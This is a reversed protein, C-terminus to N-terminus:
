RREVIARMGRVWLHRQVGIICLRLSSRKNLRGEQGIGELGPQRGIVLYCVTWVLQWIVLMHMLLVLVEDLRGFVWTLSVSLLRESGDPCKLHVGLM